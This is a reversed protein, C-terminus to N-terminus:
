GFAPRLRTRQQRTVLMGVICLNILNSVFAV